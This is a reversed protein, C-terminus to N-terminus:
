YNMFGAIFPDNQMDSAEAPKIGFLKQAAERREYFLYAEQERIREIAEDLMTMQGEEDLAKDKEDLLARVAVPNKAGAAWLKRDIDENQKLMIIEAKLAANERELMDMQLALDEKGDEEFEIEPMKREETM